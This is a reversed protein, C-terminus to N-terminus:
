QFLLLLSLINIFISINIIIIKITQKIVQNCGEPANVMKPKNLKQIKNKNQIKSKNQIEYSNQIKKKNQIKLKNKLTGFFTQLPQNCEMFLSARQLVSDAPPEVEAYVCEASLQPWCHTQIPTYPTHTQLVEVQM